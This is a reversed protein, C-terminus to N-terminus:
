SYHDDGNARREGRQRGSESTASIRGRASPTGVCILSVGCGLVAQRTDTTVEARGSAAAAAMLDIM